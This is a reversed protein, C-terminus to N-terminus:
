SRVHESIDPFKVTFKPTASSIYKGETSSDSSLYKDYKRWDDVFRKVIHFQNLPSGLYEGIEDGSLMKLVATRNLAKEIEKLHDERESIFTDLAPLLREELKYLATVDENTASFERARTQQLSFIVLLVSLYLAAM